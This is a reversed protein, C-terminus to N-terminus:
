IWSVEASKSDTSTNSVPQPDTVPVPEFMKDWFIRLSNKVSADFRATCYELAKTKNGFMHIAKAISVLRRTSIVEDISGAEYMTRAHKAFDTLKEILLADDEVKYQSFVNKLIKREIAISPYEQELTISFRDLFAEDQINAGAFDGKESFKGKTNATAIVNFGPAPAVFRNAKKLFIGKGELVPQLCMINLSALHVEDLLLIAGSKMARIVPGEVFVTEKNILRMGGLLDDEDTERTINVRVLERNQRACIQEVMYTKGNGSLGSVYVPYFMRSKVIKNLDDHYGFEVYDKDILPVLGSTAEEIVVDETKSKRTSVMLMTFDPVRYYSRKSGRNSAYFMWNPVDFGNQECIQIVTSRKIETEGNLIEPHENLYQIFKDNKRDRM